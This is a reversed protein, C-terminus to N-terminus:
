LKPKDVNKVLLEFVEDAAESIYHALLESKNGSSKRTCINFHLFDDNISYALGWGIPNVESWGWADLNNSSLQSTSVLWTASYNFLKDQLLAHPVEGEKLHLKMGLFHRDVGEGSTAAKIYEVHANLAARLNSHQESEAVKPNSWNKVLVSVEETVSRTAETRGRFFKRTSSAEYTPWLKNNLKFLGLQMIVQVLADPSTKFQKIQKKGFRSYHLVKVDHNDLESALNAKAFEISENVSPTIDFNLKEPQAVASSLDFQLSKLFEEPNIKKLERTVFENLVLTPSGDMRSHEGLFGVYGNKAISFQLAKDFFRNEGNGHWAFHARQEYTVPVDEDLTLVFTSRFIDDLSQVNLPSQTLEQYTEYYKERPLATLVGVSKENKPVSYALEHIKLLQQYIESNAFREGTSQDHTFLKFFHNNVIVVIFQNKLENIDHFVNSDQGPALPHRSTNFMWKFSEMCFPTGRIVEAPLAENKLLDSFILVKDILAVSKILQSKDIASLENPLRKHGFFYSVYPVIADTYQLYAYDDWYNSLWNRSKSQLQTLREHLDKGQTNFFDEVLDVQKSYEEEDKVFPRISKLYREKTQAITPVPLSPLSDQYKFTEGKFSKASTAFTRTM